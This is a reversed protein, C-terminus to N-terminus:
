IRCSALGGVPFRPSSNPTTAISRTSHYTKFQSDLEDLDVAEAFQDDFSTHRAEYPDDHSTYRTEQAM